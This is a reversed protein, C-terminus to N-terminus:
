DFVSLYQSKLLKLAANRKSSSNYVGGREGIHPARSAKSITCHMDFEEASKVTLTFEGTESIREKAGVGHRIRLDLLIDRRNLGTESGEKWEHMLQNVIRKGHHGNSNTLAEKRTIGVSEVLVLVMSDLLQRSARAIMGSRSVKLVTLQRKLGKSILIELIAFLRLVEDHKKSGLEVKGFGSKSAVERLVVLRNSWDSVENNRKKMSVLSRLKEGAKTVGYRFRANEDACDSAIADVLLSLLCHEGIRKGEQPLERLMRMKEQITVSKLVAYVNRKTSVHRHMQEFYSVANCDEAQPEYSFMAGEDHVLGAHIEVKGLCRANLGVGGNKVQEEKAVHRYVVLFDMWPDQLHLETALKVAFGRLNEQGVGMTRKVVYLSCFWQCGGEAEPHSENKQSHVPKDSEFALKVAKFWEQLDREGPRKSGKIHVVGSSHYMCIKPNGTSSKDFKVDVIDSLLFERYPTRSLPRRYVCLSKSKLDLTMYRSFHVASRFRFLVFGQLDAVTLAARGRKNVVNTCNRILYDKDPRLKHIGEALVARKSTLEPEFTGHGPLRTLVQVNPQAGLVDM